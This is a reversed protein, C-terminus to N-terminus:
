DEWRDGFRRRMEDDTREIARRLMEDADRSKRRARRGTFGPDDTSAPLAGREVYWLWHRAALDRRYSRRSAARMRRNPNPEVIDLMYRVIERPSPEASERYRPEPDGARVLLELCRPEDCAEAFHTHATM